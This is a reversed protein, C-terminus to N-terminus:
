WSRRALRMAGGLRGLRRTLRGRAEKNGQLQQEGRRNSIAPTQALKPPASVSGPALGVLAHLADM